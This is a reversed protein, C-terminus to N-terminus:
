PKGFALAFKSGFVLLSVLAMSAIVRPLDDQGPFVFKIASNLAAFIATSFGFSLVAKETLGIAPLGVVVIAYGPMFLLFPLTTARLTAGGLLSSALVYVSYVALALNWSDAKRRMTVLIGKAARKFTESLRQEARM